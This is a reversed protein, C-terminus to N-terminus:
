VGEGRSGTGQSRGGPGLSDSAALDNWRSLYDPSASGRPDSGHSASRHFGPTLEYDSYCFRQDQISFCEDRHGEYPMPQFDTVVGEVTSLPGNRLAEVAKHSQVFGGIGLLGTWFLGFGALVAFVSWKPEKWGFRRKLLLGATGIAVFVLGIPLMSLDPIPSVQFVTTYEPTSLM